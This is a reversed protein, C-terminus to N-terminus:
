VYAAVRMYQCGNTLIEYRTTKSLKGAPTTGQRRWTQPGIAKELVRSVDEVQASFAALGLVLPLDGILGGSEPHPVQGNAGYWHYQATFLESIWHDANPQARAVLQCKDGAVSVYSYFSNTGPRARHNFMLPKFDVENDIPHTECPDINIALWHMGRPRQTFLTASGFHTPNTTPDKATPWLPLENELRVTTVHGGDYRFTRGPTRSYSESGAPPLPFYKLNCYRIQRMDVTIEDARFCFRIVPTDHHAAM